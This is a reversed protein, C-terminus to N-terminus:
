RDVDNLTWDYDFFRLRVDVRQVYNAASPPPYRAFFQKVAEPGGFDKSYWDLIKNVSIFLPM